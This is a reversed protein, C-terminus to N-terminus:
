LSMNTVKFSFKWWRGEAAISWKRIPRIPLCEVWRYNCWIAVGAFTPLLDGIEVEVLTPPHSIDYRFHTAQAQALIAGLGSEKDYLFIKSKRKVVYEHSQFQVEM